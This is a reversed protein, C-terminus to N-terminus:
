KLTGSVGNNREQRSYFCCATCCRKAAVNAINFVIELM